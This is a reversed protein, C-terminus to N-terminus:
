GFVNEYLHGNCNINFHGNEKYIREQNDDNCKQYGYSQEIMERPNFKIRIRPNRLM